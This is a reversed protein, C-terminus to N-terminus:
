VVFFVSYLPISTRVCVARMGMVPNDVVLSHVSRVMIHNGNIVVHQDSRSPSCISYFYIERVM